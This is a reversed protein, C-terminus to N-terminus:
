IHILSLCLEELIRSIIYPSAHCCIEACDEGTYSRPARFVGVLVDDIDLFDGRKLRYGPTESAAGKRFSVLSDVIPLCQPGSIRIISVAGGPATAPACVTDTGLADIKEM